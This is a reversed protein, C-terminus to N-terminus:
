VLRQLVAFLVTIHHWGCAHPAAAGKGEFRCIAEANVFPIRSMRSPNFFLPFRVKLSCSVLLLLLLLPPRPPQLLPLVVASVMSIANEVVTAMGKSYVHTVPEMWRKFESRNAESTGMGFWEPYVFETMVKTNRATRVCSCM